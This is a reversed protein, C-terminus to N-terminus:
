CAESGAVRGRRTVGRLGTHRTLGNVVRDRVDRRERDGVFVRQREEFGEIAVSGFCGREVAVPLLAAQSVFSDLVVDARRGVIDNQVEDILLLVDGCREPVNDSDDVARQCVLDDHQAVM